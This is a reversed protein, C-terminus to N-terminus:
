TLVLKHYAEYYNQPTAAGKQSNFVRKAYNALGWIDNADPLAQPDRYYKIRAHITSYIPSYQLHQLNPGSVGCVDTIQKSLEHRYDIYNLYNDYLTSPEIQYLGLAPGSGYQVLTDGMRSEHAATLLLLEEASPSWLGLPQISAKIINRLSSTSIM